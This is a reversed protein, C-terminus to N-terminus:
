KQFVSRLFGFPSHDSGATAPSPTSAPEVDVATVATSTEEGEDTPEDDITLESEPTHADDTPSTSAVVEAANSEDSDAPEPEVGRCALCSRVTRDNDGFVRAFDPSVYGGCSICAPM